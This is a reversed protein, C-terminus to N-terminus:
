IGIKYNSFGVNGEEGINHIPVKSQNMHGIDTEELQSLRLVSGTDNNANEGFGFNAGKQHSFGEAFRQLNISM